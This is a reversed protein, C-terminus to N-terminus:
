NKCPDEREARSTFWLYDFSAPSFLGALYDRPSKRDADVEVFGITVIDVGPLYLPVGRDRRAHGSGTILVSRGDLRSAM